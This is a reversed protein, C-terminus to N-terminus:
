RVGVAEVCTKGVCVTGGGAEVSVDEGGSNALGCVGRGGSGCGGMAGCVQSVIFLYRLEDVGNAAANLKALQARLSPDSVALTVRADLSAGIARAGRAKELVLNVAERLELVSTWLAIDEQAIAILLLM